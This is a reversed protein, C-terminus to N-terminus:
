ANKEKLWCIKKGNEYIAEPDYRWKRVEGDSYTKRILNGKSSYDEVTGNPYTMRVLNGKSSYEDVAGNPYTMRVLDGRSSYEHQASQKDRLWVVWGQYEGMIEYRSLDIGDPYNRALFTIAEPCAEWKRLVDATLNM